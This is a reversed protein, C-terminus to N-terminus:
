RAPVLKLLRAGRGDTLIYVAGDPGEDIDRYRESRGVDFREEGVVRDGDLTLRAFYNSNLGAAFLSGTWEPFLDGTYFALAGAAIVPDWYYVPQEMGKAATLGEGVAGGRYEIGYTITPWGYDRGKRAINLEDGGRPAHELEWLEGTEPHLDAGQVNRHGYSWIEPLVGDRGVFPNDAPVSGDPNIRVIKGLASGLDQAQVRGARISREGLTIFLTGDPNFVLRSGYHQRSNMSPTMEYIVEVDELRPQAGDVLRGRAAATNNSGDPQPQSYTWYVRGNEAFAPDLEVDLLGGQGGPDVPLVGAIPASVSGDPSAIVMEGATRKTILFRGDPLFAFGFPTDIGETVVEVIEFRTDTTALPARTQNEFAPEYGAGNGQGPQDLPHQYPNASAADSQGAGANGASCAALLAAAAAFHLKRIM